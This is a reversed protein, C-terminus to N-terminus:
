KLAALFAGLAQLEKEPIRGEFAPMRSQPNHARPNNVHAVLWAVTHGRVAGTRTLDPGMRGGQGGIAHCRACGVADYVGKGAALLQQNNPAAPAPQAPPQNPDPAPAARPPDVKFPREESWPGYRGPGYRARVKWVWAATGGTPVAAQRKFAYTTNQVVTDILPKSAGRTGVQLQYATPATGEVPAKWTFTWGDAPQALAANAEPTALQPAKPAVAPVQAARTLPIV